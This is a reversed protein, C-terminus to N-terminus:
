SEAVTLAKDEIVYTRDCIELVGTRHTSVVFTKTKKFETLNKLVQMETEKDLASTGEDILIVPAKSVLARAICLRQKQGESINTGSEEIVSNIGDELKEVFSYACAAKLATIIEEDTADRNFLRMNEAITGYFIANGQPVYAFLGRTSASIKCTSSGYELQSVGDAIDSIGLLIRFITTKGSGSPGMLAVVEGPHADFTLCNFVEEADDYCFRANKINISIGSKESEKKIKEIDITEDKAEKPLEVIDILRRVATLTNIASPVMSVLSSFSNSLYSSLQLFMTMTGFSIFHTWLRYVGWGYCSYSVIMGIFSMLIGTLVSFKNQQMIVNYFDQQIMKFKINFDDIIGFAKISQVNSYSEQIFSMIRSSVERSKKSFTRMKYMLTKSLLVVVPTSIVSILAMIPDYYLIIAICCIAQFAKIIFNPVWTLISNSVTGVDGNIRNILDGTHFKQIYKWQVDLSIQYIEYQIENTVLTSYKTSIRSSVASFIISSIGFLIYMLAILLIPSHDEGTVTDIMHKSLVSGGMSFVSSFLGLVFYIAIIGKYRKLYKCVWKIEEVVESLSNAKLLKLLKEKM